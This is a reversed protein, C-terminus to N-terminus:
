HSMKFGSVELARDVGPYNRILIALVGEWRAAKILHQHANIRQTAHEVGVLRLREPRAESGLDANEILFVPGGSVGKLRDPLGAPSPEAGSSFSLDYVLGLETSRDFTLGASPGEYAHTLYALATLTSNTQWEEPFGCVIFVGQSPAIRVDAATLFKMGQFQEVVDHRLEVVGLDHERQYRGKGIISFQKKAVANVAWLTQPAEANQPWFEDLVHAATVLFYLGAVTFLSGTGHPRWTNHDEDHRLLPITVQGLFLSLSPQLKRNFEATLQAILEQENPM